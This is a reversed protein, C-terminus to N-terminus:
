LRISTDRRKLRLVRDQNRGTGDGLRQNDGCSLIHAFFNRPQDLAQLHLNYRDRKARRLADALGIRAPAGATMAGLQVEAIAERVFDCLLVGTAQQVGAGIEGLGVDLANESGLSPFWIGRMRQMVSIPMPTSTWPRSAVLAAFRATDSAIRWELRPKTRRNPLVGCSMNTSTVIPAGFGSSTSVATTAFSSGYPVTVTVATFPPSSIGDCVPLSGIRMALAATITLRSSPLYGRPASRIGM